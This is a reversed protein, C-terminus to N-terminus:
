IHGGPQGDDLLFVESVVRAHKSTICFEVKDQFTVIMRGGVYLGTFAALRPPDRNEKQGERGDAGCIPSTRSLGM